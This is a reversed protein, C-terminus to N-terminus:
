RGFAAIGMWALWCFSFLFSFLFFLLPPAFSVLRTKKWDSVRWSCGRRNRAVGRGWCGWCGPAWQCRMGEWEM